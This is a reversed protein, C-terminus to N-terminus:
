SAKEGENCRVVEDVCLGVRALESCTREDRMDIDCVTSAAEVNNYARKKAWRASM